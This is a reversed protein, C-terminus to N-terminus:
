SRRSEEARDDRGSLAPRRIRVEQRRAELRRALERDPRGRDKSMGKEKLAEYQRENKVSPRKDPM